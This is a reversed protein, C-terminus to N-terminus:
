IVYIISNCKDNGVLTKRPQLKQFSLITHTPVLPLHPPLHPAKHKDKTPTDFRWWSLCLAWYMESLALHPLFHVLFSWEPM